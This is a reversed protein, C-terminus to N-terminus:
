YVIRNHKGLLTVSGGGGCWIVIEYREKREFPISRSGYGREHCFQPKANFSVELPKYREFCFELM